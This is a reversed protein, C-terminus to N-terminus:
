AYYLYCVLMIYNSINIFICFTSQNISQNIISGFYQCVRISRDGCKIQVIKYCVKIGTLLVLCLDKVHAYLISSLTFKILVVAYSLLYFLFM